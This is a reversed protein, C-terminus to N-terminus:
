TNQTSVLYNGSTSTLYKDTTSILFNGESYSPIFDVESLMVSSNEYMIQNSNETYLAYDKLSPVEPNPNYLANMMLLNLVM